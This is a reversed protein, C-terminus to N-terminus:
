PVFTLAVLIVLLLIKALVSIDVTDSKAVLRVVVLIITVFELILENFNSEPNVVPVNSAVDAIEVGDSTAFLAVIPFILAVFAVIEVRLTVFIVLELTNAVDPVKLVIVDVRTDALVYVPAL